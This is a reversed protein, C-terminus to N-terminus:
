EAEVGGSVILGDSVTFSGSSYSGVNQMTRAKDGRGNDLRNDAPELESTAGTIEYNYTGDPLKSIAGLSMNPSGSDSFQEMHLGDPGVISLKVNSLGSANAVSIRNGSIEASPEGANAISGAAFLISAAVPMRLLCIM